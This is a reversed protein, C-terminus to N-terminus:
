LLAAETGLRKAPGTCLSPELQHQPERQRPSPGPEKEEDERGSPLLNVLPNHFLTTTIM